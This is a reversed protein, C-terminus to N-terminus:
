DALEAVLQRVFGDCQWSTVDKDNTATVVFSNHCCGFPERYGALRRPELSLFRRGMPGLQLVAEVGSAGPTAM